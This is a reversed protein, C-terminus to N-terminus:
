ANPAPEKEDVLAEMSGPEAAAPAAEPEVVTEEPADAQAGVDVGSSAMEAQIGDLVAGSILECYLN